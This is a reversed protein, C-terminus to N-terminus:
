FTVGSCLLFTVRRDSHTQNPAHAYHPHRHALALQLPDFNQRLNDIPAKTNISRSMNQSDATPLNKTQQLRKPGITGDSNAMLGAPTWGVVPDLVGPSIVRQRQDALVISVEPRRQCCFHQRLMMGEGHRALRQPMPHGFGANPQRALLPAFEMLGTQAPFAQALQDLNVTGLMAPEFLPAIRARKQHEDVIGSAGQHFQTEHRRLAREGIKRRQTAVKLGM